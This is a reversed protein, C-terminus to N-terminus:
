QWEVCPFQAGNSNVTVKFNYGRYNGVYVLSNRVIRYSQLNLNYWQLEWGVSTFWVGYSTVTININYWPLQWFVCTFWAVKCAVTHNNISGPTCTVLRRILGSAEACQFPTFGTLCKGANSELWCQQKCTESLVVHVNLKQCLCGSPM